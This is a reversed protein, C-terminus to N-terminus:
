MPKLTALAEDVFVQGSPTKIITNYTSKFVKNHAELIIVEVPTLEVQTGKAPMLLPVLALIAQVAAVGLGVLQALKSVTSSDTISFGTLISGLNSVISTLVAKIEGLTTQDASAKYAAILAQVNTIQAQIADTIKTIAASVNDAITKGSLAAIFTSIAKVLAALTPLAAGVATLWTATCGTLCVVSLCLCLLLLHSKRLRM